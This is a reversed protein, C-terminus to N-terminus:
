FPIWLIPLDEHNVRKRSWSNNRLRKKQIQTFRKWTQMKRKVIHYKVPDLFTEKLHTTMEYAFNNRLLCTKVIVRERVSCYSYVLHLVNFHSETM